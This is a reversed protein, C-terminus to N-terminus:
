LVAPMGRELTEYVNTLGEAALEPKLIRWLRLTVDADEAAYCTAPKLEVHRFSKQAKGTGAVSKFAIPGHGLHRKALEDMGHPHLGGSLVYSILMTDDIPAVDVGHRRMVALDYKINQGVKLVSPEELLPKLRALADEIEIQDPRTRGAGE